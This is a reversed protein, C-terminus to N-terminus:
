CQIIIGTINDKEGKDKSLNALDRLKDKLSTKEKITYSMDDLSVRNYMGDSCVLFYDGPKYKGKFFDPDPEEDSGLCQTLTHSRKDNPEVHNGRDIERQALTHDKTIQLSKAGFKYIRSDGCNIAVYEKNRLILIAATTGLTLGSECGLNYIENSIDIIETALSEKIFSPFDDLIEGTKEEFWRDIREKAKKSAIEGADTGGMGDFVAALYIAEGNIYKPIILRNDENQDRLNKESYSSFKIPIM